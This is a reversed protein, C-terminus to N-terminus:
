EGDRVPWVFFVDAIKPSQGTFGFAMGVNFARDPSSVDSTSSWYTSNQVDTFPHAQTLAPNFESYDVLSLLEKVNPLRWDTAVSGDSLGCSGAMLGNADALAQEWARMGFCEALKLWILGTLNDTVTGDGNDNFRPSPWDVGRQLEGDQGTGSCAISVGAEDWCGQQGTDAVPASGPSAATM